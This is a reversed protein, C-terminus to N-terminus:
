ALRTKESVYTSKSVWLPAIYCMRGLRMKRHIGWVFALSACSQHKRQDADSYVTSYVITLSTIQSAIAGMIVDDYHNLIETVGYRRINNAREVEKVAIIIYSSSTIGSAIYKDIIVNMYLFIRLLIVLTAMPSEIRMIADDFPCNEANSAREAPFEGTVSSNGECLGTVRLKSTKKSRRRILLKLLCELRQHDSIDDRENHRWKLANKQCDRLYTKNEQAAFFILRNLLYIMPFHSKVLNSNRMTESIYIEPNIRHIRGALSLRQMTVNDRM